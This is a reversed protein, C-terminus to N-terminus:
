LLQYWGRISLATRSKFAIVFRSGRVFQVAPTAPIKEAKTTEGEEGQEGRFPEDARTRSWTSRVQIM